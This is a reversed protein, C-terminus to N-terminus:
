TLKLFPRVDEDHNLHIMFKCVSTKDYGSLPFLDSVLPNM